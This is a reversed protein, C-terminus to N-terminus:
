YNTEGHQSKVNVNTIKIDVEHEKKNIQKLLKGKIHDYIEQKNKSLAFTDISDQKIKTKIYSSRPTNRYEFDVIVRYIPKGM